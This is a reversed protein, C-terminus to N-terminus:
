DSFYRSFNSQTRLRRQKGKHLNVDIRKFFYYLLTINIITIFPELRTFATFVQLIDNIIIDADKISQVYSHILLALYFYSSFGYLHLAGGLPLTAHNYKGLLFHTLPCIHFFSQM